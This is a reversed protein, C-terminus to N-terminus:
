GIPETVSQLGIHIYHWHDFGRAVAGRQAFGRGRALRAVEEAGIGRWMRVGLFDRDATDRAHEIGRDRNFSVGLYELLLGSEIPQLGTARELARLVVPHRGIILRNGQFLDFPGRRFLHPNGTGVLAGQDIAAALGDGPLHDTSIRRTMGPRWSTAFGSDMSVS